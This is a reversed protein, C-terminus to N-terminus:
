DARQMRLVYRKEGAKFYGRDDVVPVKFRLTSAAGEIPTVRLTHTEYSGCYDEQVEKEYDTVILGAKQVAMACSVIDKPLVQQTYKKTISSTKSSLMSKDTVIDTDAISDTEITLDADTINLYEAAPTDNIKLEKTKEVLRMKRKYESAEISNNTALVELEATMSEHETVTTDFVDADVGSDPQAEEKIRNPNEKPKSQSKSQDNNSKSKVQESYSKPTVPELADSDDKDAADAAHAHEKAQLRDSYTRAVREVTELAELDSDLNALDKEYQESSDESVEDQSEDNAEEQTQSLIMLGRLFRRQLQLPDIKVKQDPNTIGEVFRFSDLVGLNYWAYQGSSMLILNIRELDARPIDGIVSEARHELSLWKWLELLMLSTDDPYDQLTKPTFRKAHLNLNAVSPLRKPMQLFLFHQKINTSQAADKIREFIRSYTNHFRYYNTYITRPYKYAKYLLAYSVVSLSNPDQVWKDLEVQRRFRKNQALYSRVLPLMPTGLRRPHGLSHNGLDTESYLWIKKTIDKLLTDNSDPGAVLATNDSWHWVSDKPWVWNTIDFVRPRMVHQPLRVGKRKFLLNYLLM